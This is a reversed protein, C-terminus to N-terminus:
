YGKTDQSVYRVRPKAATEQSTALEAELSALIANMEALSRFQTIEQEHRVMLVGSDRAKRLSDIRSQLDTASLAM